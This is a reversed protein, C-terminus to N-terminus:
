FPNCPLYKRPIKHFKYYHLYILKCSHIVEEAAERLARWKPSINEHFCCFSLSFAITRLHETSFTKKSIECFECFFSSHWPRKKLATPPRLGSVKNFFLSLCLHKGTFKAFNRFCKKEPFRRHNSRLITTRSKHRQALPNVNNLLLYAYTTVNKTDNSVDREIKKNWEFNRDLLQLPVLIKM